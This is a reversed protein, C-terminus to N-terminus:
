EYESNEESAAAVQEMMRWFELLRRRTAGQWPRSGAALVVRREHRCFAQTFEGRATNRSAAAPYPCLNFGCTSPCGSFMESRDRSPGICVPLEPSETWLVVEPINRREWISDGKACFILNLLLVVDAVLAVSEDTLAVHQRGLVDAEALWTVRSINDGARIAQVALRAAERVLPHPDTSASNELIGLARSPRPTSAIRMTMAHLANIRAYWFRPTLSLFAVCKADIARAPALYAAIKFGRAMSQEMLLPDTPGAALAIVRDLLLSAREHIAGSSSEAISPLVWAVVGPPLDRKVPTNGAAAEECEAIAREFQDELAGLASGGGRAIALAAAWRVGFDRDLAFNWLLRYSEEQGQFSLADIVGLKDFRSAHDQVAEIRSLVASSIHCDPASARWLILCRAFALAAHQADVSLISAELHQEYAAIFGEDLQGEDDFGSMAITRYHQPLRASSTFLEVAGAESRALRSAFYDALLGHRFRVTRSGTAQELLGHRTGHRIAELLLRTLDSRRDFHDSLTDVVEAMTAESRGQLLLAASLLSLGRMVLRPGVVDNGVPTGLGQSRAYLTMAAVQAQLPVVFLRGDLDEVGPTEALLNLYFPTRLAPSLESILTKANLARSSRAELYQLAEDEQLVDLTFAASNFATDLLGRRVAVIVDLGESCASACARRLERERNSPSLAAGFEDFGDVILVIRRTKRIFRWITDGEGGSRLYRDIVQRFVHEAQGILDIDNRGGISVPVTVMRISTLHRATEALLTTKGSGSEGYLLIPIPVPRDLLESTIDDILRQHTRTRTLTASPPTDFLLAPSSHISRVFHRVTASRKRGVVSAYSGFALVLIVTGNESVGCSISHAACLTNVKQQTGLYFVTGLILIASAFALPPLHWALRKRARRLRRSIDAWGVKVASRQRTNLM